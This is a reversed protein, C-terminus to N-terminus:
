ALNFVLHSLALKINVNAKLYKRTATILDLSQTFPPHGASLQHHLLYELRDLFELATSRTFNQSLLLELRKGPRSQRLEVVLQDTQALQEPDPASPSSQASSVLQVRSLITPLLADPKATVLYLESNGPPEELTKLLAHQAPLTLLDAGQIIVTNKASQSPKRSLFHIISRVEEIGISTDPSVTLTDPGSKVPSPLHDLSPILFAHM